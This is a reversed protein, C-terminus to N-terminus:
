FLEACHRRCYAALLLADCNWLTVKVEPFLEQAKAKHRNKKQTNTEDKRKILGFGQQWKQPAIFARRMNNAALIGRVFGYNMGFSFMSSAGQRAEGKSRNRNPGVAETLVYCDLLNKDNLFDVIDKETLKDTNLRIMDVDRGISVIAGSKGPDCGIYYSM